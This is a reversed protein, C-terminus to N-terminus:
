SGLGPENACAGAAGLRWLQVPGFSASGSSNGSSGGGNSDGVVFLSVRAAGPGPFVQETLTAEGDGVFLEVSSWDVLVRCRLPTQPSPTPVAAHCRQGFLTDGPPCFGSASRDIFVSGLAPDYGIRTVATTGNPTQTAIQVGCAASASHLDFLLDLSCGGSHAPTQLLLQTSGATTGSRLTCSALEVPQGLRLAQLAAVPQQLLQWTTAGSSPGRRAALTRPVTMAGRWPHTPLDNAYRHNGLWALWIPATTEGPTAPLNAWSLAAYFDAGGDAWQPQTQTDATFRTGDFHGFFIRAGSGGAPHGGLADVKLLWVTTNNAKDNTNHVPLLLLDPCEWIGQGDFPAEFTSLPQWIKLDPSAYFCVQRLNPLVVLMVWRQTPAHWFVKPDRFDSDGVLPTHLVPNDAYKAWTTGGDTSYALEQAQGGTPARLCGTYLAVLPPQGPHGFGSSNHADLVVSGSYISAREDEAIAVPLEHWHVADASVAHGWSMHGWRNAYPNHQYFLHYRGGLWVLGNPDSLWNKAASYHWQPRHPEQRTTTSPEPM